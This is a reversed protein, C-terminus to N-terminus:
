PKRTRLDRLRDRAQSLQGMLDHVKQLDLFEGLEEQRPAPLANSSRERLMSGARELGEGIRINRNQLDTVSAQQEEIEVLLLGRELRREQETM